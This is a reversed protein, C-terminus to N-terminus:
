DNPAAEEITEIPASEQSGPAAAPREPAAEDTNVEPQVMGPAGLMDPSLMDPPVDGLGLEDPFMQAPPAASSPPSVAGTAVPLLVILLVWAFVVLLSAWWRGRLAQRAGIYILILSWLWFLTLHAALSQGILQLLPPWDAYGPLKDVLGTLGAAGVTGGAATYLLQLGAMLGLPLSAWVAIQWNLGLRPAYGNFLTVESLLLALIAWGLLADSAARLATAWNDAIGGGGSAPGGDGVPVGGMDPPVGGFDGPVFGVGPGGMDQPIDPGASAPVSASGAQQVASLGLLALILAAAWLWQRPQPADPLSRFFVGPQLALTTIQGWLSRPRAQHNMLDARPRTVPIPKNNM